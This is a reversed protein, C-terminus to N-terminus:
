AIQRWRWGPRGSTRRLTTKKFRGAVNGIDIPNIGAVKVRM